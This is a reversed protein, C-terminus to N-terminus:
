ESKLVEAPQLRAALIAPIIASLLCLVGASLSLALALSHSYASPFSEFIGYMDFLGARSGLVDFMLWSHIADIHAMFRWGGLWGALSGLLSLGMAFGVVLRFITLPGVGMAMLLGLTRVKSKMMLNVMLFIACAALLLIFLTVIRVMNMEYQVQGLWSMNATWAEVEWRGESGAERDIVSRIRDIELALAQRDAGSLAAVAKGAVPESPDHNLFGQMALLPMFVSQKDEYGEFSVIRAVRAEMKKTRPKEIMASPPSPVVAYIEVKDGVALGLERALGEPLVLPVAKGPEMAFVSPFDDAVKRRLTHLLHFHEATVGRLLAGKMRDGGTGVLGATELELGTAGKLDLKKLISEFESADWRQALAGSAERRTITLDAASQRRAQNWFGELMGETVSFVVINVFVALAVFLMSAWAVPRKLLWAVLLVRM